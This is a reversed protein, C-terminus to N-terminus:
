PVELWPFSDPFGELLGGDRSLERGDLSPYYMFPLDVVSSPRKKGALYDGRMIAYLMSM